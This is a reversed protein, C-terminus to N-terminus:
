RNRGISNLDKTLSEVVKTQNRIEIQKDDQSKLNDVIDEEAEVIKKEYKEINKHLDNNKNELKSLDKHLNKLRDEEKKIQEEIVKRDVDFQFHEVFARMNDAVEPDMRSDVYRGDSQFFVHATTQNKQENLKLTVSYDTSRSISPINISEARYEKRKRDRDFKGFPKTYEKWVNEARKYDANKLVVTFANHEGTSMMVAGEEVQAFMSVTIFSFALTLLKTYKM